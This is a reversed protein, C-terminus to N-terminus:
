AKDASKQILPKVTRSKALRGAARMTLLFLLVAAFLTPRTLDKKVLWAFHLVGAMAIAYSLKHLSKWRNGGLRRQMNDSSTAALPILLLFASFGLTIYPREAIDETIAAWDFFQDLVLYASFHLCAYFFCCLGLLRRLRIPWFWGFLQRLPTATLSALLLALTWFGSRHIVAEIPNASLEGQWADTLLKAFPLMLVCFAFLKLRALQAASM